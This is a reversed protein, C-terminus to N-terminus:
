RSKWATKKTGVVRGLVSTRVESRDRHFAGGIHWAFSPSIVPLQQSVSAISLSLINFIVTLNVIGPITM